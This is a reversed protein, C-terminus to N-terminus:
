VGRVVRLENFCEGPPAIAEDTPHLFRIRDGDARHGGDLIPGTCSGGRLGRGARRKRSIRSYGRLARMAPAAQGQTRQRNDRKQRPQTIVPQVIPAPMPPPSGGTKFFRGGWSGGRM